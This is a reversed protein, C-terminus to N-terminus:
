LLALKWCSRINLSLSYRVSFGSPLPPDCERHLVDFDEGDTDDSIVQRTRHPIRVAGVRRVAEIPLGYRAKLAQEAAQGQPLASASSVLLALAVLSPLM